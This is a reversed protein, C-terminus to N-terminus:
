HEGDSVPVLIILRQVPREVESRMGMDTIFSVMVRRVKGDGSVVTSKVLAKKWKGRVANIDQLLVVDGVMVNRHETHWKDQIVLSPFVERIWRRWFTTVVSQTFAFRAKENTAEAFPGQPVDSTARGLILDNACLYTGDDPNSPHDGIPRQNVLQAAEYMVTLAENARLISVGIAANLARKVTKVLAETAGNYWPSDAPSFVWLSGKAHGYMKIQNWNLDQVIQKLVNSAGVLQTGKDSFFKAPWGRISAFRRLVLLFGDTSYDSAMDVFIARSCLCTIIDGYCKRRVRQNVVGKVEFPGFYDVGVNTFAPSPKIREIPLPSMVQECCKKLKIKCYVCERIIRKVIHRVGVIWYKARVKSVTAVEGLHGGTKHVHRAILVSIYSEKALLIFQQKNWTCTMWRETRGGVIIIGDKEMPRLKIHHKLDINRQAELIWFREAKALDCATLLAERSGGTKFRQYLKLIRATTYKLLQWKSFKEANIRSALSEVENVVAVFEEKKKREPIVIGKKVEWRLPWEKEPLKLFEPGEQWLSGTTMEDPSCGRTTLDAVNLWPKGEVWAWEEPKTAQRIEGIRNGAFTNFGYSERHVMAYVIESDVIHIIKEFKMKLEKEITVRLRSGLVAGCLEIRVM